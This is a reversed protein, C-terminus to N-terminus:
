ETTPGQTIREEPTLFYSPKGDLEGIGSLAAALQRNVPPYEYVRLQHGKWERVGKYKRVLEASAVISGGNISLEGVKRALPDNERPPLELGESLDLLTKRSVAIRVKKSLRLHWTSIYGRDIDEDQAIQATTDGRFWKGLRELHLDIHRATKPHFDPAHYRIAEPLATILKDLDESPLSDIGLTPFSSALFEKQRLLGKEQDGRTEPIPTDVGRGSKTESM